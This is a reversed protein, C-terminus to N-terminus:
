RKEVAKNNVPIRELLRHYDIYVLTNNAETTKPPPEGAALRHRFLTLDRQQRSLQASIAFLWSKVM